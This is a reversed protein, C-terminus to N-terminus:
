QAIPSKMRGIASAHAAHSASAWHFREQDKPDRLTKMMKEFTRSQEEHWKVIMKRMDNAGQEYTM